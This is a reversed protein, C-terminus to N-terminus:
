KTKLKVNHIKPNYFDRGMLIYLDMTYQDDIYDIEPLPPLDDGRVRTLSDLYKIYYNNQKSTLEGIMFLHSYKGIMFIPNTRDGKPFKYFRITDLCNELVVIFVTDNIEYGKSYGSIWYENELNFEILDENRKFHIFSIQFTTDTTIKSITFEEYSTDKSYRDVYWSDSIYLDPCVERKMNLVHQKLISDEKPTLQGYILANIFLFSLFIILRKTIM